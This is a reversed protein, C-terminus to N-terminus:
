CALAWFGWCSVRSTAGELVNCPQFGRAPCISIHRGRLIFMMVSLLAFLFQSGVVVNRGGGGMEGWGGLGRVGERRM